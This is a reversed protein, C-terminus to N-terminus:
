SSQDVHVGGPNNSSSELAGSSKVEQPLNVLVHQREDVMVELRPLSRKAPGKTVNGDKDFESHHCKCFFTLDDSVRVKCGKHTCISSLVFLKKDRRIVFFGQDRFADYVDDKDFSTVLGADAPQTAVHTTPAADTNKARDTKQGRDCGTLVASSLAVFERRNLGM